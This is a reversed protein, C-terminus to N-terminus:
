GGTKEKLQGTPIFMREELTKTNEPPRWGRERRLVQQGARLVNDIRMMGQGELGMVMQGTMRGAKTCRIEPERQGKILTVVLQSDVLEQDYCVVESPPEAQANAGAPGRVNHALRRVENEMNPEGSPIQQLEREEPM